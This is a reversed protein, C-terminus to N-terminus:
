VLAAIVTSWFRDPGAGTVLFAVGGVVGTTSAVALAGVAGVTAWEDLHRVRGARAALLLETRGTRDDEVVRLVGGISAAAAAAAALVSSIGVVM